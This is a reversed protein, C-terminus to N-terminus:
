SLLGAMLKCILNNNKTYNRKYFRDARQQWLTSPLKIDFFHVCDNIIDINSTRFLKMLVRTVTFDLSKLDSANLNYWELGYMLVPVCTSFMLHLFVEDSAVRGVKGFITNVASFFSRKCKSTSCKFLRSGVIYNGLYHIEKLWQLAIGDLTTINACDVNYRKGIRICGSKSTNISVDLWHLEIECVNLMRQLETISQSILLIDDAYLIIAANWGFSRQAAISDVYVAFLFPALVSGQRVGFTIQFFCSYTGLWKVTSFCNALLMELLQLLKLPINRKMLKIFLANHNVKDFAKTLDISCLNATGNGQIIHEVIKRATYVAHGCGHHKKFGFQNDSGTLFNSFRKLFCHEFIKLIVPSIAIGRFDNCRMSKSRSNVKPLPVIYNYRFGDPIICHAVILEFLKSLIVVVSPHAYVLHEATLGDLGPAKGSEMEAIIKSVM